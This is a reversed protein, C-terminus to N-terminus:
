TCILAEADYIEPKGSLVRFKYREVLCGPEMSRRFEPPPPVCLLYQNSDSRYWYLGASLTNLRNDRRARYDLAMALLTEELRKDPEFQQWIPEDAYRGCDYGTAACGSVCLCLTGLISNRMVVIPYSCSTM